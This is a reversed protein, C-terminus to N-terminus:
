TNYQYSSDQQKYDWTGHNRVQQYFWYFNELTTHSNAYANATAMNDSPSYGSPAAYNTM